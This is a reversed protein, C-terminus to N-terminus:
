TDTQKIANNNRGEDYTNDDDDGEDDGEDGDGDWAIVSAVHLGCRRPYPRERPKVAYVFLM